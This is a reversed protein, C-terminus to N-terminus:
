LVLRIHGNKVLFLTEIIGYSVISKFATNLLFFLYLWPLFSWFQCYLFFSKLVHCYRFFFDIECLASFLIHYGHSTCIAIVFVRNALAAKQRRFSSTVPSRSGQRCPPRLRRVFLPVWNKESLNRM